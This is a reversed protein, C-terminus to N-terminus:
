CGGGSGSLWLCCFSSDSRRKGTPLTTRLARGLRFFEKFQPTISSSLALPAGSPSVVGVGAIVM